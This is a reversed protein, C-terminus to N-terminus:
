EVTLVIKGAAGGKESYRHAEATEALPFTKDIVPKLIDTRLWNAILSMDAGRNKAMFALMKKNSLSAALMGLAVDKPNPATTVYRGGNRLSAKSDIFNTKGVADFIIDYRSIDKTFDHEKHNIVRDAGLSRVLEVNDPGCVGTIEGAGLARALQVGMSGVGGSAGNILVRDGSLLKAHNHLAQLATLAALPVAAAQEFSLNDPIFALVTADVAAYEANAGGIGIPMGFVRDGIRFRTVEDGLAAVEGAIDRGPIKPFIRDTMMKASGDRVKWDVPNVSSARVRVLVQDSKIKPTPQEGFQLVEAPGYETYYIAKM